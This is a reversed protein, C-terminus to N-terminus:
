IVTKRQFVVQILTWEVVVIDKNKQEVKPYQKDSPKFTLNTFNLTGSSVYCTM